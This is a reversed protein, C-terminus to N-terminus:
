SGQPPWLTGGAGADGDFKVIVTLSRQSVTSMGTNRAYGVLVPGADGSEDVFTRETAIRDYTWVERGRDDTAVINPAGLAEAVAAAPIGRRIERRVTGLTLRQEGIESPPAV